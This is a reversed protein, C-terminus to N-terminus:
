GLSKRALRKSDVDLSPHYGILSVALKGYFLYSSFAVAPLSPRPCLLSRPYSTAIMDIPRATTLKIIIVVETKNPHPPSFLAQAPVSGCIRYFM